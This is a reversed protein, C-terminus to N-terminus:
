DEGIALRAAQEATDAVVTIEGPEALATRCDVVRFEKAIQDETPNAVKLL